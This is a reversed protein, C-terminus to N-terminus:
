APDQNTGSRTQNPCAKGGKYEPRKGAIFVRVAEKSDGEQLNAIIVDARAALEANPSEEESFEHTFNKFPSIERLIEFTNCPCGALYFHIHCHYM